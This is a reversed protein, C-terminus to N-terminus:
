EKKAKKKSKKVKKRILVKFGRAEYKQIRTYTNKHIRNIFSVRNFTRYADAMGVVFLGGCFVGLDLYNATASMDFNEVVRRPSKCVIVDIFQPLKDNDFFASDDDFYIYCRVELINLGIQFEKYEHDDGEFSVFGLNQLARDVDEAKQPTCYVDVDSDDWKDDMLLQTFFGGSLLVQNKSDISGAYLSFSLVSPIKRKVHKVMEQKFDVSTYLSKCTRSLNYKDSLRLFGFVRQKLILNDALKVLQNMLM